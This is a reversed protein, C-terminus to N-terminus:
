KGNPDLSALIPVLSAGVSSQGFSYLASIGFPSASDVGPVFACGSIIIGKVDSIQLCTALAVLSGMSHGLLFFPTSPAHKSRVINAVAIFDDTIFKYDQIM